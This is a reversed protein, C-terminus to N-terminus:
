MTANQRGVVDKGIVVSIFVLAGLEDEDKDYYSVTETSIVTTNILEVMKKETTNEM